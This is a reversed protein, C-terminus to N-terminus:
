KWEGGLAKYLQILAQITNFQDLIMKKKYDYKALYQDIAFEQSKLGVRVLELNADSIKLQALYKGEALKAIKEQNFFTVLCNEVDELGKLLTSQFFDIAQKQKSKQVDLESLYRFGKFAPWRLSPGLSWFSNPYSFWNSFTNNAYGFAGLLSITPFLDAKAIKVSYGSQILQKEAMIVDPRNRLLDSPIGINLFLKKLEIPQFDKTVVIFDLSSEGLLRIMHHSFIAYSKELDQLDQELAYLKQQVELINQAPYLGTFVESKKYEVLKKIDEIMSKHLDILQYYASLAFYTVSIDSILTLEVGRKYAQM